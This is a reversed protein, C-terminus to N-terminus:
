EEKTIDLAEMSAAILTAMNEPKKVPVEQSQGDAMNKAGTEDILQALAADRAVYGAQHHTFHPKDLVSKASSDVVVSNILSWDFTTPDPTWQTTDGDIHRTPPTWKPVTTDTNKLYSPSFIGHKSFDKSLFNSQATEPGVAFPDFAAGQRPDHKSRPAFASCVSKRGKASGSVGMKAELNEIHANMEGLTAMAAELTITDLEGMNEKVLLETDRFKSKLTSIENFLKLVEHQNRRMNAVQFILFLKKSRLISQLQPLFKSLILKVFGPKSAEESRVSRTYVAIVRTSHHKSYPISPIPPITTDSAETQIISPSHPVVASRPAVLHTPVSLNGLRNETIANTGGIELRGVNAQSIEGSHCEKPGQGREQSTAGMGKLCKDMKTDFFPVSRNEGFM